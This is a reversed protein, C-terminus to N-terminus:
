VLNREGPGCLSVMLNLWDLLFHLKVVYDVSTARCTDYTCSLGVKFNEDLLVFGGKPKGEADGMASVM